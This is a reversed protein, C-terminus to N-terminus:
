SRSSRVKTCSQTVNIVLGLSGQPTCNGTLPALKDSVAMLYVYHAAQTLSSQPLAAGSEYSATTFNCAFSPLAAPLFSSANRINQSALFLTNVPAAAAQGDPTSTRPYATCPGFLLGLCCLLVAPLPSRQM